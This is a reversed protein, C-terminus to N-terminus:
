AQDNVYLTELDAIECGQIWKVVSKTGHLTEISKGVKNMDSELNCGFVLNDKQTAIVRGSTGMWTCQEITWKPDGYVSKVGAGLMPTATSGYVTREHEVYARFVAPSVKFTGGLKRHAVPMANYMQEIKTLANTNNLAGTTIPTIASATIENAIITGWGTSIVSENVLQWKAPHTLPSQGATTASICKYIDSNDGFTVYDTNAAYTAGADFDAADGKYVSNYINDNIEQGIKEFEKEWVWQAFPIQKAAPELMDSQFTKYAEEPIIDIIKMGEYVMLKRGNWSRHAGSREDVNLNIPRIGKAVTMKQLGTGNLSANRITRVQNIFDLGNLTQSILKKDHQGIFLAIGAFLSKSM